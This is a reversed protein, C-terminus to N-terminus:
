KLEKRSMIKLSIWTTVNCLLLSVIGGVGIYFPTFYPLAEAWVFNIPSLLNEVIWGDVRTRVFNFGIFYIALREGMLVFLGIFFSNKIPKNKYIASIFMGLLVYPIVTVFSGVFLGSIMRNHDFPIDYILNYFFFGIFVSIFYFFATFAASGLYKLLHRICYSTERKSSFIMQVM